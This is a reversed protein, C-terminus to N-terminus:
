HRLLEAKSKPRKRDHWAFGKLHQEEPNVEKIPFLTSEPKTKFVVRKVDGKNFYVHMSSCDTKNLGILKKKDNKMYYLAQASGVVDINHITDNIFYGKIDKGKIQNFKLSDVKSIVLANRLLEFNKISKAGKYIKIEEAMLQTEASWALPSKYMTMVSDASYYTLSDCVGQLDKKFIRVHHYAKLITTDRAKENKLKDNKKQFIHLTDASLLLSDDKMIQTFLARGSVISIGTVEYHQGLDGEIVIHQATDKIAVNSMARGYGAKRDYYISDATLTSNESVISANKNLHSKESLTNYWGRECYLVNKKSTITTPGVFHTTKTLTNYKLTDGVMIYEPNVLKVNYRFAVDKTTSYYYGNKSTLTNNKSVITGGGYYSAISKSVDFTLVNSTLTMDKEVCVVNGELVAQKTNGDYKLTNGTITLSDGKRIVIHDYAELTNNSFKYASDCTITSGEHKFVVNGILRQAGGKYERDYKM